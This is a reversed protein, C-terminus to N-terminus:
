IGNLKWWSSNYISILINYEASERFKLVHNKNKIFQFGSNFSDPNCISGKLHPITNFNFIKASKYAM